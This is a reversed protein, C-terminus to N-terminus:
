DPKDRPLRLDRSERVTDHHGACPRPRPVCHVTGKPHPSACSPPGPRRRLRLGSDSHRHFPVPSYPVAVNTSRGSVASCVWCRLKGTSELCDEEEEMEEWQCVRIEVVTESRSEVRGAGVGVDDCM